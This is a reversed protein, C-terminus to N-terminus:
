ATRLTVLDRDPYNNIQYGQWLRTAIFAAIADAHQQLGPNGMEKTTERFLFLWREFLEANLEPLAVHKPM